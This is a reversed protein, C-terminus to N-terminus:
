MAHGGSCISVSRMMRSANFWSEVNRGADWLAAHNTRSAEFHCCAMEDRAERSCFTNGNEGTIREAIGHSKM